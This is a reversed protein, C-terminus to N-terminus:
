YQFIVKGQRDIYAMTAKGGKDTKLQVNAVGKFFPSAVAFKQPFAQVGDKGIYWSSKGDGVLALGDSFNDALKFQPTIAMNGSSDIYGFLERVKVLARGDSFPQAKDFSPPIVMAGSKDIYGWREGVVVPALGESFDLAYDVRTDLIQGDKNIFTFKCAPLHPQWRASDPLTAGGSPCINERSSFVCPGEVVVRAMDDHFYEGALFRPPIVFRGSHDIYGVKEGVTIMALGNHFSSVYGLPHGDFQPLIAFNGKTDIYGWKNSNKPMAAALGESFDWASEFDGDIAVEGKTNIYKGNYSLRM